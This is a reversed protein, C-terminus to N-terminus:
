PAVSPITTQYYTNPGACAVLINGPPYNWLGTYLNPNSSYVFLQSNIGQISAADSFTYYQNPPSPITSQIYYEYTQYNIYYNGRDASYDNYGTSTYYNDGAFQIDYECYHNGGSAFWWDPMYTTVYAGVDSTFTWNGADYFYEQYYGANIDYLATMGLGSCCDDIYGWDTHVCMCFYDPGSYGENWSIDTRPGLPTSYQARAIPQEVSLLLFTAIFVAILASIILSRMKTEGNKRRKQERKARGKPSPPSVGGLCDAEPM